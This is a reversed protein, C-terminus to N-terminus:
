NLGSRPPGCLEKRRFEEQFELARGARIADRLDAMLRQFWTLNHITGLTPGIMEGRLYMHRLYALSVRECALCSCSEDLPGFDRKWRQNRIKVIGRSTFLMANRANRTAMVCDFFDIGLAVMDVIDRPDGVGMLYRPRDVPLLPEVVHVARRMEAPSEGVSVGGIAYGPLDLDVLGRASEERLDDHVGGQVIAFLAQDDPRRHAALSREAWGRTREVAQEIAWRKAPHPACEDFAMIIDAGLDNQIQISSEPTLRIQAGDIHSRFTVGDDDIKALDALSFVQFGGSDTLIPREWGMFRHLGGAERVVDAGPRLALHYTNALIMPSGTAELQDPTVGKVSGQTGVPLFAPTEVVGHPLRLRGCRAPSAPDRATIEFDLPPM